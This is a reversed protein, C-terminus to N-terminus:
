DRRILRLQLNELGCRVLPTTGMRTRFAAASLALWTERTMEDPRFLPAFAPHTFRPAQRNYPCVSQCLDCGFLWGHLGPVDPPSQATGGPPPVPANASLAAPTDAPPVPSHGPATETSVPHEALGTAPSAPRPADAPAPREITLRSICRRLDLRRPATIAGNPCADMCRRCTGCREGAFPTDYHDAPADLVAEGLLVFSGFRPSVLLSNKGIWGLGAEAAWSKEMLPATDTFCRGTVGPYRRRVADLLATLMERITTHYDRALAYSAIRPYPEWPRAPDPVPRCSEQWAGNNCSVLCVVVTRAGEVLLAPDLRKDAHRELYGLGAHNGAALWASFGEAREDLRRCRAVGCDDFGIGLAQRRIWEAELM